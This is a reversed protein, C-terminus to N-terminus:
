ALLNALAVATKPFSKILKQDATVLVTNALRYQHNEKLSANSQKIRRRFIKDDL